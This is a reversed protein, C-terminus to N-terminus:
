SRQQPDDVEDDNDDVDVEDDVEDDNNNDDVEDHDELTGQRSIPKSTM